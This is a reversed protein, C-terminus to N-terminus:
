GGGIEEEEFDGRAEKVHPNGIKVWWLWEEPSGHM